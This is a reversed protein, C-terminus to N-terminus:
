SEVIMTGQMTAWHGPFTCVYGYEGPESPATFTVSVTEGPAAMSTHAIIAEDEPIYDNASGAQMGGKGVRQFVEEDTSDLIVVNHNMAPSTATNDFVLEVTAGATVTFETQEYQMQNGVPEITVTRDPEGGTATNGTGGGSPESESASSSNSESGGGGCAALLSGAGLGALGVLASRRLFDRRSVRDQDDTSRDSRM